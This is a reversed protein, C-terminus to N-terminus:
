TLLMSVTAAKSVALTKMTQFFADTFTAAIIRKNGNRTKWNAFYNGHLLAWPFSVAM